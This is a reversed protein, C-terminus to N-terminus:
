MESKFFYMKIYTIFNASNKISLEQEFYLWQVRCMGETTLTPTTLGTVEEGTTSEAPSVTTAIPQTGIIKESSAAIENGSTPLAVVKVEYEVGPLLDDIVYSRNSPAVLSSNTFDEMSGAPRYQVIFGTINSELEEPYKWTVNISNDTAESDVIAFLAPESILIM